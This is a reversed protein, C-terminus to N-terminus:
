TKILGTAFADYDEDAIWDCDIEDFGTTGTREYHGREIVGHWWGEEPAPETREAYTVSALAWKRAEAETHFDQCDGGGAIPEQGNDMWVTARFVVPVDYM